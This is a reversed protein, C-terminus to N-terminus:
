LRRFYKNIILAYLKEKKLGLFNTDIMNAVCRGDRPTLNRSEGSWFYLYQFSISTGLCMKVNVHVHLYIRVFYICFNYKGPRCHNGGIIMDEQKNTQIFDKM